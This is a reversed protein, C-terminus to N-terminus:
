RSCFSYCNEWKEKAASKCMKDNWFIATKKLRYRELVIGSAMPSGELPDYKEKIEINKKEM